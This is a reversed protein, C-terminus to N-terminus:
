SGYLAQNLKFNEVQELFEHPSVQRAWLYEVVSDAETGESAFERELIARIADEWEPRVGDPKSNVDHTM